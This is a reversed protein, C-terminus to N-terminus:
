RLALTQQIVLRLDGALYLSGTILLLDDPGTAALAQRFALATDREAHVKALGRSRALSALTEPKAARPSNTLTFFAESALPLVIDLSAAIDKDTAMAYLLVTRKPSFNERVARVLAHMSIPNHAGDVVVLPNRGMVEVRAAVEVRALGAVIASEDIARALCAEGRSRLVDIAGVAV